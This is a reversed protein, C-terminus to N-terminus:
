SSQGVIADFMVSASCIALGEEAALRNIPETRGAEVLIPGPLVQFAGAHALLASRLQDARTLLLKPADFTGGSIAALPDNAHIVTRVTVAMAACVNDIGWESSHSQGLEALVAPLTMSGEGVLDRLSTRDLIDARQLGATAEPWVTAVITALENWVLEEM